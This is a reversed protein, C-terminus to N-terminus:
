KVKTADKEELKKNQRGIINVFFILFSVVLTIILGLKVPSEIVLIIVGAALNLIFAISGFAIFVKNGRRSTVNAISFIIMVVVIIATVLMCTTIITEYIDSSANLTKTILGILDYELYLCYLSDAKMTMSAILCWIVFGIGLLITLMSAPNIKKLEAEKKVTEQQSNSSEQSKVYEKYADFNKYDNFSIFGKALREDLYVETADSQDNM